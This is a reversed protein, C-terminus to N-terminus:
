SIFVKCRNRPYVARCVKILGNQLTRLRSSISLLLVRLSFKPFQNAANHELFFSLLSPFRWSDFYQSKITKFIFRRGLNFWELGIRNPKNPAHSSPCPGHLWRLNKSISRNLITPLALYFLDIILELLWLSRYIQRNLFSRWPLSSHLSLCHLKFSSRYSPYQTIIFTCYYKIWFSKTKWNM